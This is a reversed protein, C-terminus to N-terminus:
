MSRLLKEVEDRAEAQLSAEEQLGELEVLRVMQQEIGELEAAPIELDMEVEIEIMSMVKAYGIPLLVILIPDRVRQERVRQSGSTFVTQVSSCRGASVTSTPTM